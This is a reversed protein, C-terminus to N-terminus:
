RRLHQLARSKQGRRGSGQSRVRFQLCILDLDSRRYFSVRTYSLFVRPLSYRSSYYSIKLPNM